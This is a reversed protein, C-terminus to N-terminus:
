PANRWLRLSPGGLVLRKRGSEFVASEAQAQVVLRGKRYRFARVDNLRFVIADRDREIPEGTPSVKGGCGEGPMSLVMSLVCALLM